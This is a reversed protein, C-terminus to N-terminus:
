DNAHARKNSRVQDASISAKLSNLLSNYNLLGEHQLRGVVIGPSIGISAAFDRLVEQRRYNLTLLRRYQSDPILSKAAFENAEREKDGSIHKFDDLFTERKGHLLIHGLEHFLSFWLHDDTRFRMSLQAVAKEGVWYAAGSAYSRPLPPVFVVAIGRSACVDVLQPSSQAFPVLSFSRIQQLDSRLGKADFDATELDMAELQGKRLWAATAFPCAEKSPSRRFAPAQVSSESLQSFSAIGFFSLLLRAQEPRSAARKIWDFRVMERMPFQRLTEVEAELRSEARLRQQAIQFNRELESWFSAPLGLVLELELATDETIARKGQLIENIKNLPRKMREALATQTMSKAALMERITDGPPIAVDPIYQRPEIRSM